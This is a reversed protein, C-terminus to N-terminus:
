NYKTGDKKNLHYLKKQNFWDKKKDDKSKNKYKKNHRNKFEEETEFIKGCTQCTFGSIKIQEM